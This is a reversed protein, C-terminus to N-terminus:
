AHEDAATGRVKRSFILGFIFSLLLGGILNAQFDALALRAPTAAAEMQKLFAAEDTPLSSALPGSLILGVDQRIENLHVTTVEPTLFIFAYLLMAKTSAMFFTTVLGNQVARYFPYAESPSKPRALWVGAGVTMPPIWVAVFRWKWCPSLGMKYLGLAVLFLGIGSLLGAHFSERM